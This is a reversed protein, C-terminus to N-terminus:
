DKLAEPTIVLFINFHHHVEVLNGNVSVMPRM